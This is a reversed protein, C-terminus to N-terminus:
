GSPHAGLAAIQDSLATVIEQQHDQLFFHGGPFVTLTFPGTTHAAWDRAEDVTVKPDNDGVLAIIPCRLTEGPSHHYTEAARYDARLAPLIMRVLEDDALLTAETGSMRRLEALLGDDPLLHVREHRTTTPGRRGSAFLAVVERGSSQLRRATEYAISAGLSHGFLVIPLDLWPDLASAAADAFASVDDLCPETRRDQRGPYQLCIVEVSPALARSVPFFYSASGGAHPFCVLRARPDDSPHFRRVWETM